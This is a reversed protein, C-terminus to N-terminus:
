SKDSVDEVSADAAERKLLNICHECDSKAKYGEGSDAIIKGNSATFRWRYEGKRDKYISFHCVTLRVKM